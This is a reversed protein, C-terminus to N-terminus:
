LLITNIITDIINDISNSNNIFYINYIKNQNYEIILFVNKNLKYHYANIDLCVHKIPISNVITYSITSEDILVKTNNIVSSKSSENMISLKYLIDNEIKYIGDIAYILKYNKEIKSYYLKDFCINNIHSIDSIYVLM